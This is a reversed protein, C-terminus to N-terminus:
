FQAESYGFRVSRGAGDSCTVRGGGYGRAGVACTFGAAPLRWDDNEDLQVQLSHLEDCGVGVGLLADYIAPPNEIASIACGPADSRSLTVQRTSSGERNGYGPFNLAYLRGQQRHASIVIGGDDALTAREPAMGKLLVIYNRRPGGTFPCSAVRRTAARGLTWLGGLAMQDTSISASRIRVVFPFQLAPAPDSRDAPSWRPNRGLHSRQQAVTPERWPVSACVRYVAPLAARATQPSTVAATGFLAAALAAAPPLLALLPRIM